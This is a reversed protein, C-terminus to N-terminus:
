IWIGGASCRHPSPSRSSHILRRHGDVCVRGLVFHACLLDGSALLVSGGGGRGVAPRSARKRLPLVLRCAPRNRRQKPSLTACLPPETRAPSHFEPMPWFKM